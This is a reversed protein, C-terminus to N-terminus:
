RRVLFHQGHDVVTSKMELRSKDRSVQQKYACENILIGVSIWCANVFWTLTSKPYRSVHHNRVKRHHLAGTSNADLWPERATDNDAWSMPLDKSVKLPEGYSIKRKSCAQATSRYVARWFKRNYTDTTSLAIKTFAIANLQRREFWCHWLRDLLLTTSAYTETGIQKMRAWQRGSGMSESSNITSRQWATILLWAVATLWLSLLAHSRARSWLRVTRARCMM